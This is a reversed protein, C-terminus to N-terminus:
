ILASTLWVLSFLFASKILNKWSDKLSKKKPMKMYVFKLPSILM